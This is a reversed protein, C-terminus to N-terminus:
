EKVLNISLLRLILFRMKTGSLTPLHNSNMQELNKDLNRKDFLLSFLTICPPIRVQHQM